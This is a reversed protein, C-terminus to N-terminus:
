SKFTYSPLYKENNASCLKSCSMPQEIEEPKFLSFVDLIDIFYLYKLVSVMAFLAIKMPIIQAIKGKTAVGRCLYVGGPLNVLSSHHGVFQRKQQSFRGVEM